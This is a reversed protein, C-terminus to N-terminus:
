CLDGDTIIGWGVDCEVIALGLNSRTIAQLVGVAPIDPRILPLDARAMEHEVRQLLRRGM